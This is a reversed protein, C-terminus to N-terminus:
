GGFRFRDRRQEWRARDWGYTRRFLLSLGVGILILPWWDRASFHLLHLNGLTGLIGGVIMIGPLIARDPRRCRALLIAGYFTFILPFYSALRIDGLLGMNDLLMAVGVIAIILGFFASSTYRM